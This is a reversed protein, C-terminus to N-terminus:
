LCLRSLLMPEPKRQDGVMEVGPNVALALGRKNPGHDAAHRLDCAFEDDTGAHSTRAKADMGRNNRLRGSGRRGQQRATEEETHAGSFVQVLVDQSLAPRFDLYALFLQNLRKLDDGHQPLCSLVTM